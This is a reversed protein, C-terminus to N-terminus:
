KLLIMKRSLAKEETELTYFYLGTSVAAGSNDTGDWLINLPGAELYSDILTRIEQGKLNYIKLTTRSAEPLNLEINTVPNFPNPYNNLSIRNGPIEEDDSGTGLEDVIARIMVNGNGVMAWTGTADSFSYGFSSTDFGIASPSSIELIAIYFNGSNFVEQESVPIAITNWGQHLIGSVAFQSIFNAGPMGGTGNDDFIRFIMSGANLTQIFVQVYATNVPGNLYDPEFRVAMHHGQGVNFGEEAGGDDYYLLAQDDGLVYAAAENSLGSDYGDYIATVVYYNFQGGVPSTHLYGPEDSPEVFDLLTYDTGSTTTHWVNYGELIRSPVPQPEMAILSGDQAEIYGQIIWNYDYSASLDSWGTGSNIYLGAVSPGADYSASYGGTSAPDVQNIYYGIWLEEGMEISVPTPLTVENWGLPVPNTITVEAALNAANNGTWVKIAYSSTTSNGPIIKVTTLQGNVYPIMDNATFRSAVHWEGPNTLGLYGEVVGNDWGIWGEQGGLESPEWNLQVTNDMLTTATLNEPAPGVFITNYVRFNDIFLGTGIGGDDNDDTTVQYKIQITEGGWPTLDCTGSQWGFTELAYEQDILTWVSAVGGTTPGNFNYHVRTWQTEDIAKVYVLYYDELYGDPDNDGDSDLMDCYVWYDFFIDIDPLDPLTIEPSILENNLNDHVTCRMANSGEYPNTSDLEWYDGAISGSYGPIMQTDGAAGEGDSFFIDAINLNDIRMGFMAPEDATDYAPDSCFAFRIMVNDGAYTSLDFSADVWGGSDSCWGPIGTGELFEFGFSYLSTNTYAPIGQIPNWTVGGDTSIRVNCGDWGDYGAPEGGPDEVHWNLKFTMTPSGAPLTIEPTDMVVYRHSTYGGLAEDGMWWSQGAYAGTTSLHWAENWDSPATADLTTWEGMGDEFGDEFIINEERTLSSQRFLSENTQIGKTLQGSDALLTLTFVLILLIVFGKRM